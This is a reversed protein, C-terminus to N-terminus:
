VSEYPKLFANILFYIFIKMATVLEHLTVLQAHRHRRTGRDTSRFIAGTTPWLKMPQPVTGNTVQSRGVAAARCISHM